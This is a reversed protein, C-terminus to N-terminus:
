YFGVDIDRRGNIKLSKDGLFDRYNGILLEHGEKHFDISKMFSLFSVHWRNYAHIEASCEAIFVKNHYQSAFMIGRKKMRPGSLTVFDAMAYNAFGRGIGANNTPNYLVPEEYEGLYDHWFNDNYAIRQIEDYFHAPYIEFRRDDRVRVRCRAHDNKGPGAVTIVDDPQMNQALRWRDPYTVSLKTKADQWYFIDAKAAIPALSLCAFVGSLITKKTLSIM